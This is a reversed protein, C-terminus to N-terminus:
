NISCIIPYRTSSATQVYTRTWERKSLRSGEAAKRYPMIMNIQMTIPESNIALTVTGLKLTGASAAKLHIPLDSSFCHVLREKVADIALLLSPVL